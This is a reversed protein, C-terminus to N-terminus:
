ITLDDMSAGAELAEVVWAPRRGRGTWTQSTDAPNAYKPEVKKRRKPATRPESTTGTLEDLSFGMKKAEAKLSSLANMKERTECKAVAKALKKELSKLEALTMANLNAM